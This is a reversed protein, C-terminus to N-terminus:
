DLGYVLETKTGESSATIITAGHVASPLQEWTSIEDAWSDPMWLFTKANSFISSISSNHSEHRQSYVVWNDQATTGEPADKSFQTSLAYGLNKVLGTENFEIIIEILNNEQDVALEDVCDTVGKINIYTKTNSRTGLYKLIDESINMDTKILGIRLTKNVRSINTTSIGYNEIDDPEFLELLEKLSSTDSNGTVETALQCLADITPAFLPPPEYALIEEVMITNKFYLFKYKFLYKFLINNGIHGDFFQYQEIGTPIEFKFGYKTTDSENKILGVGQNMGDAFLDPYIEVISKVAEVDTSNFLNPYQGSNSIGILNDIDVM